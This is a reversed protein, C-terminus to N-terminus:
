SHGNRAITGGVDFSGFRFIRTGEFKVLSGITIREDNLEIDRVGYVDLVLQKGSDGDLARPVIMLGKTVNFEMERQIKKSRSLSFIRCLVASIYPTIWRALAFKGEYSLIDRMHISPLKKLSKVVINRKSGARKEHKSKAAKRRMRMVKMPGCLHGYDELAHRQAAAAAPHQCKKRTGNSNYITPVSDKFCIAFTDNKEVHWQTMRNQDKDTEDFLIEVFKITGSMEEDGHTKITVSLTDEIQHVYKINESLHIENDHGSITLSTLV